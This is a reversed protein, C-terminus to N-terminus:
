RVIMLREVEVRGRSALRAWYIGTPLRHGADDRGDWEIRYEGAAMEGTPVLTRVRRGAVDHIALSVAGAQDLHYVLGVYDSSPNPAPRLLGFVLPPASSPGVAVPLTASATAMSVPAARGHAEWAAYMDDGTSNTTNEDRLFSVYDKSTTQYYLTVEARVTAAPLDYTVNDWHQGDAYRPGPGPWDPDVPSAQVQAFGSNTFGRPPIRNDKYITDNLVFHFSPAAPLGLVASLAGSIGLDCEYLRLDPDETLEGTAPDYAGSEYILGNSDNYARLQIWMRRGEPYGTPLKHGTQNTVTVAATPVNGIRTLQLDLTASHALMYLARDSAASMASPDVEGPYLAPIVSAMWTNGGTLDHIPLDPRVPSGPVSSGVGIADRLHCDQCTSVRGDPRAGAFEPQYVGTPSNYESMLWEAYTREVPFQQYPDQSPPPTDLANLVYRGDGTASFAPNSVNHCTGCMAAERHFPSPIIMHGPSLADTFPGRKANSPDLVLMGNATAPPVEALANLIALDELPSTGAEYFPDVMGHCADCTVGDRDEETIQSGDPPTSRGGYWGPPTHCRLCLDGSDRADQNAVAVSAYFLPDRAAQAMLSGKWTFEPEIDPDYSGHCSGCESSHPTNGAQFPQTGPLHFDRLTTPVRSGPPGVIAFVGNSLDTGQNNSPDFADVRVRNAAGPFDPVFWLHSGTNPLGVALPQFTTGGDTSFHLDVRTVGSADTAIWTISQPSHGTWSEGGNPTLVTVAPPTTDSGPIPTLHGQIEAVTVQSVSGVNQATLGPFTPTNSYGATDTVETSNSYGDSDSDNGGLSLIADRRGAPTNPYSPLRNEVAVGFPNRNGGGNFRFHCVGCHGANSPVNDLV